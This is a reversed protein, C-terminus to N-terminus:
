HNGGCDHLRVVVSTSPTLKTKGGQPLNNQGWHVRGFGRVELNQAFATVCFKVRAGGYLLVSTCRNLTTVASALGGGQDFCVQSLQTIQQCRARRISSVYEEKLDLTTMILPARALATIVSLRQVETTAM